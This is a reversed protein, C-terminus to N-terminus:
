KQSEPLNLYMKMKNDHLIGFLRSLCSRDVCALLCSSLYQLKCYQFLRGVQYSFNYKRVLLHTVLYYLVFKEVLNSSQELVTSSLIQWTTQESTYIPGEKRSTEAYKMIILHFHVQIEWFRLFLSQGEKQPLCGHLPSQFNVHSLKFKM